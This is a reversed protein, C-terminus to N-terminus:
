YQPMVDFAISVRTGPGAFPQTRHYFWSPFLVLRGPKPTVIKRECAERVQIRAPPEGFELKGESMGNESVPLSVYYVGSLWGLPHQHPSQYGGNRLVTGWTRLTWNETAYAMVDHGGFGEALLEDITAKIERRIATDFAAFVQSEAPDLEGTQAGGITSKRAPDAILSSHTTVFEHLGDNLQVLDPFGEPAEVDCVRVLHEYDLIHRSDDVRGADRLAYGCTALVLREGPYVDLFRECVDVARRVQDTALLVNALDSVARANGPDCEVARVLSAIAADVDSSERQAYALNILAMADDPNDSLALELIDIAEECRGLGCLVAGKGAAVLPHGPALDLAADCVRLSEQERGADMLANALNCRVELDDPELELYRYHVAIAEVLHGRQQLLAGLNALARVSDPAVHLVNRLALEAEYLDGAAMLTLALDNVATVDGPAADIAATLRRLSLALDGQQRALVGSLRLAQANRPEARLVEGYIVAADDLLGHRHATTARRLAADIGAAADGKIEFNDTVGAPVPALRRDKVPSSAGSVAIPM